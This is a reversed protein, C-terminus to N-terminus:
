YKYIGMQPKVHCIIEKKFLSKFNSKIKIWRKHLKQTNEKIQFSRRIGLKYNTQMYRSFVKFCKTQFTQPNNNPRSKFYLSRSQTKNNEALGVEEFKFHRGFLNQKKLKLEFNINIHKWPLLFRFKIYIFRWISIDSYLAM